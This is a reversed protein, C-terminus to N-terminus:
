VGYTKNSFSLFKRALPILKALYTRPGKESLSFKCVGLDAGYVEVTPNSPLFLPLAWFPRATIHFVRYKGANNIQPAKPSHKESSLQTAISAAVEAGSMSGGVVVIKTGEPSPKGRAELLDKVSRFQSSHQIPTSLEDASPLSSPLKAKGFFGSAVILHDFYQTERSLGPNESNSASPSHYPSAKVVEVAWKRKNGSLIEGARSVKVVEHSTRIDIGGYRSVYGNLYQGVEWAKPHSPSSEPWAMDGFSVTHRSLNTCMDPNVMGDDTISLPWLGGMRKSKEFVTVSFFGKPFDHLLTKAAQIGAPGAGLLTLFYSGLMPLPWFKSGVICVSKAMARIAGMRTEGSVVAVSAFTPFSESTLVDDDVTTM